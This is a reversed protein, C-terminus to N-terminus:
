FGYSNKKKRFIFWYTLFCLILVGLAIGIGYIYKSNSTEAIAMGTISNSAEQKSKPAPNEEILDKEICESNICVFKSSCKCDDCNDCNETEECINNGCKPGERVNVIIDNSQVQNGKNDSAFFFLKHSGLVSSTLNAYAGDFVINIDSLNSSFTLQDNDDDRFHEALNITYPKNETLEIDPINNYLYPKRDINKVEITWSKSITEKSDSIFVTVNNEGASNYDFNHEFASAESKLESNLYWKYILTNNEPDAVNLNFSVTSGEDATTSTDPSFSTIVPKENVNLVNFTLTLTDANMSEDYVIILVNYLGESGGTLQFNILGNSDMRFNTWNTIYTYKLNTRDATLQQSFTTYEDIEFSTQTINTFVPSASAFAISILFILIYLWHKGM